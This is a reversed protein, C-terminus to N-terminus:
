DEFIYADDCQIDVSLNKFTIPIGGLISLKLNFILQYTKLDTELNNGTLVTSWQIDVSLNKFSTTGAGDTGTIENFIM